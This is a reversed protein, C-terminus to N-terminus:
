IKHTRKVKHFGRGTAIDAVVEILGVIGASFTQVKKAPGWLQEQAHGGAV